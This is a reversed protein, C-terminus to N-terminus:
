LNEFLMSLGVSLGLILGFPVGVIFGTLISFIAGLILGLVLTAAALCLFDIELSLNSLGKSFFAIGCIVALWIFVYEVFFWPLIILQFVSYRKMESFDLYNLGTINIGLETWFYVIGKFTLYVLFASALFLLLRFCSWSISILKQKDASVKENSRVGDFGDM